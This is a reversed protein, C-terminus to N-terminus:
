NKELTSISMHPRAGIDLFYELRVVPAHKDLTKQLYHIFAIENETYADLTMGDTWFLQDVNSLQKAIHIPCHLVTSSIDNVLRKKWEPMAQLQLKKDYSQFFDKKCQELEEFDGTTTNLLLKEPVRLANSFQKIRKSSFGQTKARYVVGFTVDLLVAIDVMSLGYVAKIADFFNISVPKGNKFDDFKQSFDKYSICSRNYADRLFRPAHDTQYTFYELSAEWDYCCKSDDVIVAGYEYVNGHGTCKGRLNFECNKCSKEM